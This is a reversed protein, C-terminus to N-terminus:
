NIKGANMQLNGWHPLDKLTFDLMSRCSRVWVAGLWNTGALVGCDDEDYECLLPFCAYGGYRLHPSFGKPCSILPLQM